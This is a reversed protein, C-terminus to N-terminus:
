DYEAQFVSIPQGYGQAVFVTKYINEAMLRTVHLSKRVERRLEYDIVRKVQVNYDVGLYRRGTFKENGKGTLRPKSYVAIGAQDIKGIYLKSDPSTFSTSQISLAAIDTEIQNEELARQLNRVSKGTAIYETVILAKKDSSIKGSHHQVQRFVDGYDETKRSSQVMTLWVPPLGNDRHVWNAILATAVAPITGSTDDGVVSGYTGGVLENKLEFVMREMAPEIRAIESVQSLDHPVFLSETVM